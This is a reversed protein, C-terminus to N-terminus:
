YKGGMAGMHLSEYSAEELARKIERYASSVYHKNEGQIQLYLKRTGAPVKKSPEIYQGRM